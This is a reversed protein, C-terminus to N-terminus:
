LGFRERQEPPVLRVLEPHRQLYKLVFPCIPLIQQGREDVTALARGVLIGGLGRGGYAPDIETHPFSLVGHGRDRYETFGALAGDVTIEFRSREAADVVEIREDGAARPDPANVGVGGM